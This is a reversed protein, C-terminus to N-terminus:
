YWKIHANMYIIRCVFSFFYAKTLALLWTMFVTKFTMLSLLCVNFHLNYVSNLLM